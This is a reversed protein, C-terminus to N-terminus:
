NAYGSCDPCPDTALTLEPWWMPDEDTKRVNNSKGKYISVQLHIGYAKPLLHM